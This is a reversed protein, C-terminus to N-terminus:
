RSTYNQSAFPNYPATFQIVTKGSVTDIIGAVGYAPAIVVYIGNAPSNYYNYVVGGYSLIKSTGSTSILIYDVPENTTGYLTIAPVGNITGTVTPIADGKKCAIFGSLTIALFLIFFLRMM